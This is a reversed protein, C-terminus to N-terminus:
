FRYVLGIGSRLHLDGNSNFNTHFADLSVRLGLQKTAMADIGGGVAWSAATDSPGGSRNVHSAGVLFRGWPSIGRHVPPQVKFGFNYSHIDNSNSYYGGFDAVVAVPKVVNYGLDLNWGNKGDTFNSYGFAFEGGRQAFASFTLTLLFASLLLMKRM